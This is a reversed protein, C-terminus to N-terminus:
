ALGRPKVYIGGVRVLIKLVRSGRESGKHKRRKEGLDEGLNGVLSSAWRAKLYFM